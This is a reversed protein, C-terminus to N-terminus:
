LAQRRLRLVIRKGPRGRVAEDEVVEIPFAAELTRLWNGVDHEFVTGTIRLHALSPDAIEIDLASHRRIDNVISSLPEDVYHLTGSRWSGVVGADIVHRALSAGTRDISLAQGASLRAIAEAEQGRPRTGAGAPASGETGHDQVAGPAGVDVIGEAIAIVVEDPTRRVNFATGVATFTTAGAHVRFPRAPDKAVTFFAEGSELWVDRSRESLTVTVNSLGSVAVSSGDALRVTRREGAATLVTIASPAFLNTIRPALSLAVAAVAVTVALAGLFGRRPWRTSAARACEIRTEGHRRPDAGATSTTTRPEVPVQTTQERARWASVLQEGDYTDASVEQASPWIADDVAEVACWLAEIEEYATRHREDAAFWRQWESIRELTPEAAQLEVFWEAAQQYVPDQELQCQLSKDM